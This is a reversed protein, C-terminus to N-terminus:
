FILSCIPLDSRACGHSEIKPIPIFIKPPDRSAEIATRDLDHDVATNIETVSSFLKVLLEVLLRFFNLRLYALEMLHINWLHIDWDLSEIMAVVLCDFYDFSKRNTSGSGFKNIYPYTITKVLSPPIPPILAGPTLSLSLYLQSVASAPTKPVYFYEKAKEIYPNLDEM